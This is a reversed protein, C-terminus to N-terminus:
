AVREALRDQAQAILLEVGEVQVNQGVQTERRGLDCLGRLVDAASHRHLAGGMEALIMESDEVAGAATTALALPVDVIVGVELHHGGHLREDGASDRLRYVHGVVSRHVVNPIDVHLGPLEHDLGHGEVTVARLETLREGCHDRAIRAQSGLRGLGRGRRRHLDDLPDNDAIDGLAAEHRGAARAVGLLRPDTVLLDIQSRAIVLVAGQALDEDVHVLFAGGEARQHVAEGDGDGQPQLIAHGEILEDVGEDEGPELGVPHNGAV